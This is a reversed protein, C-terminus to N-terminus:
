GRITGPPNHRHRARHCPACRPELEDTVTHQTQQYSPNHDLELMETGQCDVCEHGNAEMAVRKQRTTPHRRRSSANVPRREADHILLRIFAQDLQRLIADHTTPTGDDFTAGDGRVHVVVEATLEVDLGLFLAVLADARQQALSPILWDDGNAPQWRRGLERLAAPFPDPRNVSASVVSPPPETVNLGDFADASPGQDSETVQRNVSLVDFAGASLGASRDSPTQAIRRVLVDFAAVVPKAVSPALAIRVITMGDGDTWTTVSRAGHLRADREDDTEGGDALARAIATSLRNATRERALTLLQEENDAGAWRTLIRAKAYSIEQAALAADVLPLHRLAHGQRYWELGEGFCAALHVLRYQNANIEWGMTVLAEGASM